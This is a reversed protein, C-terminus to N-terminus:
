PTPLAEETPSYARQSSTKSVKCRRTVRGEPTSSMILPIQATAVIVAQTMTQVMQPLETLLPHQKTVIPHPPWRM